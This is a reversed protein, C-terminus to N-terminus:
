WNKGSYLTGREQNGGLVGKLTIFTQLQLLEQNLGQPPPYCTGIQLHCMCIVLVCTLRALSGVNAFFQAHVGAEVFFVWM